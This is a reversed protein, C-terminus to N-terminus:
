ADKPTFTAYPKSLLQITKKDLYARMGQSHVTTGPQSLKVDGSSIALKQETYYTLEETNLANGKEKQEILVQGSFTIVKGGNIAHAITSHIQWDPQNPQSIKIEPSLLEHANHHPIHKLQPTFLFHALQGTEDFQSVTLNTIVSDVSNSLTKADLKIHPQQKIFSHGFFAFATLSVLLWLGQKIRASM